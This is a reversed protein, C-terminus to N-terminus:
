ELEDLLFAAEVEDAASVAAYDECGEGVGEFVGALFEAGGAVEVGVGEEDDFCFRFDIEGLRPIKRDKYPQGESALRKRGYGRWSRIGAHVKM